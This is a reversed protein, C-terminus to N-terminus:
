LGSVQFSLNQQQLDKSCLNMAESEESSLRGGDDEDEAMDSCAWNAKAEEKSADEGKVDVTVMESDESSQVGGSVTM